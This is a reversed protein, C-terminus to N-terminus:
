RLANHLKNGFPPRNNTQKTQQRETQRGLANRTPLCRRRSRCACGYGSPQAYPTERPKLALGIPSRITRIASLSLTQHNTSSYSTVRHLPPCSQRSMLCRGDLVSSFSVVRFCRVRNSCSATPKAGLWRGLPLPSNHPQTPLDMISQPRLGPRM